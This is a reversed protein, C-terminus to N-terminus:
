QKYEKEIKNKIRPNVIGIIILIVGLICLYAFIISEEFSTSSYYYYDDQYYYNSYFINTYVTIANLMIASLSLCLGSKLWRNIKAYRFLLFLCWPYILCITTISLGKINTVAILLYLLITNLLMYILGKQQSILGKIPLQHLVFPLFLVSLGYLVSICSILIWNGGEHLGIVLLLFLLSVTFSAITCLFKKKPAILPIVTVSAAVFHAALVIYFWNLTRNYALNVIFCVIIPIMYIVALWVGVYFSKKKTVGYQEGMFKLPVNFYFGLFCAIAILIASIIINSITINKSVFIGMLVGTIIPLTIITACGIGFLKSTKNVKNICRSLLTTKEKVLVEDLSDNKMKSAMEKCNECNILHEEVLQKSEASCVEEHYLPLLDKIIDCSINM